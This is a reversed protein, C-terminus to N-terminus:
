RYPVNMEILFRYLNAFGFKEFRTTERNSGADHCYESFVHIGAPLRTSWRMFRGSEKPVLLSVPTVRINHSAFQEHPDQATGTQFGQLTANTRADVIEPVRKHNM